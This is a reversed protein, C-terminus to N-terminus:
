NRVTRPWLSMANLTIAYSIAHKLTTGLNNNNYNNYTSYVGVPIYNGLISGYFAIHWEPANFGIVNIATREPAEIAIV